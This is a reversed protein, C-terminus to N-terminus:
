PQLGLGSAREWSRTWDRAQKTENGTFRRNRRKLESARQNQKGKSWGHGREVRM